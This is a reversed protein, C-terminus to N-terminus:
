FSLQSALCSSTITKWSKSSLNTCSFPTISTPVYTESVHAFVFLCFKCHGQIFQLVPSESDTTGRTILQPCELTVDSQFLQSCCPQFYLCHHNHTEVHVTNHIAYIKWHHLCEALLEVPMHLMYLFFHMMCSQLQPKEVPNKIIICRRM